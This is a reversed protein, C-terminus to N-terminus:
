LRLIFYDGRKKLFSDTFFYVGNRVRTMRTETELSCSSSGNIRFNLTQRYM